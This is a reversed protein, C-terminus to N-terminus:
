REAVHGAPMLRASVAFHDSGHIDRHVKGSTIRIPGRVFIWDLNGVLWHTREQRDGFASEYGSDRMLQMIEKASERYKTNLDGAVIVPTEPPYRQADRLVEQLQQYQIRGGSRSELHLNYVVLIGGRYALESILAIRGGLRRQFLAWKPVYSHPKWFGSQSEFRLLRSARIPMTTLTAQGHYAPQEGSTQGLEQFEPAFAYNM